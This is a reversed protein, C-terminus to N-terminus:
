NASLMTAEQSAGSDVVMKATSNTSDTYILGLEFKSTTGSNNTITFGSDAIFKIAYNTNNAPDYTGTMTGTIIDTAGGVVRKASVTATFNYYNATTVSINLQTVGSAPPTSLSWSGPLTFAPNGTHLDIQHAPSSEQALIDYMSPNGTQPVSLFFPMNAFSYGLLSSGEGDVGDNIYYTALASTISPAYLNLTPNKALTVIGTVMKSIWLGRYDEGVKVLGEVLVPYSGTAVAYRPDGTNTISVVGNYSQKFATGTSVPETCSGAGTTHYGFTDTGTISTISITGGSLTATVTINGSAQQITFTVTGNSNVTGTIPGNFAASSFLGTLAAGLQKSTLSFPVASSLINTTYSGTLSAPVVVSGGSPSTPPTSGGGGCGSVALSFVVMTAVVFKKLM